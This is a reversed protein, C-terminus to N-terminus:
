RPKRPRVPWLYDNELKIHQTVDTELDAFATKLENFTEETGAQGTLEGVLRHIETISEGSALHEQEMQEFPDLGGLTEEIEPRPALGKRYQEMRIVLPFTVDEEIYMHQLFDAKFATFIAHLIILETSQGLPGSKARELLDSMYPFHRHLFAHHRRVIYEIFEAADVQSWDRAFQDAVQRGFASENLGAVLDAASIGSAQATGALDEGGTEALSIEFKELVDSIQPYQSVIDSLLDTQVFM